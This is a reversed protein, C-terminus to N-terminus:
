EWCASAAVRTGVHRQSAHTKHIHAHPWATGLTSPLLNQPASTTEKKHSTWMNERDTTYCHPNPATCHTSPRQRESFPASHPAETEGGRHSSPHLVRRERMAKVVREADADAETHTTIDHSQTYCSRERSYVDSQSPAAHMAWPVAWEPQTTWTRQKSGPPRRGLWLSQSKEEPPGM